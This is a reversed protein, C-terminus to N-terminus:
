RVTERRESGLERVAKIPSCGLGQFMSCGWTAFLRVLNVTKKHLLANSEEEMAKVSSLDTYAQHFTLYITYTLQTKALM